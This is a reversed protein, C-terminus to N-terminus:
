QHPTSADLQYWLDGMGTILVLQFCKGSHYQAARYPHIIPHDCWCSAPHLYAPTCYHICAALGSHTCLM